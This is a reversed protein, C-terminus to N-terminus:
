DKKNRAAVEDMDFTAGCEKCMVLEIGDGNIQDAWKHATMGEVLPRPAGACVEPNWVEQQEIVHEAVYVAETLAKMMEPENTISSYIEYMHDRAFQVLVDLAQYEQLTLDNM